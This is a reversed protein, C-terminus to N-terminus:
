WSVPEEEDLDGMTTNSECPKPIRAWAVIDEPFGHDYKETKADYDVIRLGAWDRFAVLYKGSLRPQNLLRWNITGGMSKAMSREYQNAPWAIAVINKWPYSTFCYRAADYEDVTVFKEGNIVVTILCMSDETPLTGKRWVFPTRITDPIFDM